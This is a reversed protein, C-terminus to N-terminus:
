IFQNSALPMNRRRSAADLSQLRFLKQPSLRHLMMLGILGFLMMTFTQLEPVPAFVVNDIQFGYDTSLTFSTLGSYGIAFTTLGPVWNHALRSSHSGSSDTYYINIADARPQNSYQALDISVLNFNEGNSSTVVIGGGTNFLTAGAPDANQGDSSGWHYLDGYGQTAQKFTLGSESYSAGNGAIGATISILPDFTVTAALSANASIVGVVSFIWRACYKLTKKM